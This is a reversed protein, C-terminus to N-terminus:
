CPLLVVNSVPRVKSSVNIFIEDIEPQCNDGTYYGNIRIITKNCNRFSIMPNSKVRVRLCFGVILFVSFIPPVARQLDSM